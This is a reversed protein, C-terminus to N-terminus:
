FLRIYDGRKKFNLVTEFERLYEKVTSKKEIPEAQEALKVIFEEISIQELLKKIAVVFQTDNFIRAPVFERILVLKDIFEDVEQENQIKFEGRKFSQWGSGMRFGDYVRLLIGLLIKTEKLKELIKIYDQKGSSAYSELYDLGKWGMSTSNLKQIDDLTANDVVVYYVDWNNAKAAELRHQGDIIEMNSNVIIPNQPLLNNENISQILRNVHKMNVARNGQVKKFM